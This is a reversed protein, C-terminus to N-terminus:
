SLREIALSIISAISLSPVGAEVDGPVVAAATDGIPQREVM